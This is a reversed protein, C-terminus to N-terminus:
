TGLSKRTDPQLCSDRNITGGPSPISMPQSPVHSLGSSSATEPDCLEKADNLSNVRDQLEQIQVMLQHVTSKRQEKQASLEESRLQRAREAETHSIRRLEESEQCNRARDEQSAKNRMELEDCFWSKERRTQDTLQNAQYLEIRQSHLQM